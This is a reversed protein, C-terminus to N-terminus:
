VGLEKRFSDAAALYEKTLAAKEEKALFTSEIAALNMEVLTDMTWGFNKVTKLYDDTLDSDQITPDDSAITIPVGSGVLEKMPHTAENEWAGTQYNSTICQALFIRREKLVDQLKSDHIASVGHGIRDAYLKEISVWISETGTIEGAHIDIAFQGDKKVLAFFDAFLEPPYNLEDGALDIGVVRSLDASHLEKYTQIMEQATQVGRNFTLLYRIQLGTESAALNCSDIITRTVDCPAFGTLETFHLPNFRLEIYFLNEHALAKVSDSAISSIDDLSKYWFKKFKSLFLLFDPKHNKPFQFAKKFSELDSPVDLKNKMAMAFLSKIPYTGELHRHIEIKPMKLLIDRDLQSRTSNIRNTLKM